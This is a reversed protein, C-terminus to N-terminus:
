RELVFYIYHLYANLKKNFLIIITFDPYMIIFKIYLNNKNIGLILVKFYIEEIAETNNLSRYFTDMYGLLIYNLFLYKLIYIM